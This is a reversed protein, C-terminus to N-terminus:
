HTGGPHRDLHRGCRGLCMRKVHKLNGSSQPNSHGDAETGAPEPAHDLYDPHLLLYRGVTPQNKRASLYLLTVCHTARGHARSALSVKYVSGLGSTVPDEPEAQEASAKRGESPGRTEPSLRQIGVEQGCCDVPCDLLCAAAQTEAHARFPIPCPRLIGM